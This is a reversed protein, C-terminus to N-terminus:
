TLRIRGTLLEQMMGQRLQCAKERRADLAAVETDIDSLITAIATQEAESPQPIELRMFASKAINYRTAGQALVSMATRGARSRFWYAFFLGNVRAAANFRFGFCFSNLYLNPIEDHLVSCFGVEEPTESSGNFFLDGKKALNQAEDPAVDVPELWSADIVTDTMVNMFPIYRAAGHGFDIKTKGTLGGYTNGLARMPKVDWAGSFGPLRRQGTLLQQMTTQHIERKKAILQDLSSILSDMDSLAAAIANQEEKSPPLAVQFSEIRGLALKPQAGVTKESEIVGQIRPSMLNYLLFDRNCTIATIRDANETLNAGSLEHPIKGVIGLTGAVSIFIDDAYIRYNKIHPFVEKPVYQINRTDVGGQVMDTVRIYPHGTDEILLSRGLPLRKGGRVSAFSQIEQVVWDEPIEGLETQRYGQKVKVSM